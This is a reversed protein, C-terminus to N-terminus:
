AIAARGCIPFCHLDRLTGGAGRRHNPYSKRESSYDPRSRYFVNEGFFKGIFFIAQIQAATRREVNTEIPIEPCDRVASRTTTLAFTWVTSAFRGFALEIATRPSLITATPESLSVFDRIPGFVRTTSAFPFSM